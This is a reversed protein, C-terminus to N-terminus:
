YYYYYYKRGRAKHQHACFIIIRCLFYYYRNLHIWMNLQQSTQNTSLHFFFVLFQTLVDVEVQGVCELLHLSVVTHRCPHLRCGSVAPADNTTMAVLHTM